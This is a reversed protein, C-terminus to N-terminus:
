NRPYLQGTQPRNAFQQKLNMLNSPTNTIATQITLSDYYSKLNLKIANFNAM